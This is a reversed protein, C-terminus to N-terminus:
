TKWSSLDRDILVELKEIDSRYFNLLWIRDENKLPERYEGGKNLGELLKPIGMLKLLKRLWDIRYFSLTMAVRRYVNRVLGSRFSKPENIRTTVADPVYTEDVGIFQCIEKYVSQANDRIDNQLIILFNENPYCARWHMIHEFYLGTRLQNKGRWDESFDKLNGDFERRGKLLEFISNYRDVPSRLMLIFKMKPFDNSIRTRAIESALYHIAIEGTVSGTPATSFYSNYWEYGHELYFDYNGTPTFFHIEKEALFVEPHVRLNEYLWTTGGRPVGLCIFNPFRNPKKNM